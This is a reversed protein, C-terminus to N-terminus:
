PSSEARNTGVDDVKKNANRKRIRSGVAIVALAIMFYQLLGISVVLIEESSRGLRLADALILSPFHLIVLTVFAVADPGDGGINGFCVYVALVVGEIACAILAAILIKRFITM